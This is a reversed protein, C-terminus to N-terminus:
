PWNKVLGVANPPKRGRGPTAAAQHAPQLSFPAKAQAGTSVSEVLAHLRGGHCLHDIHQQMSGPRERGGLSRSDRGSPWGRCGVLHCVDLFTLKKESRPFMAWTTAFSRCGPAERSQSVSRPLLKAVVGQHPNAGAGSLSRAQGTIKSAVWEYLLGTTLARASPPWRSNTRGKARAQRPEHRPNNPEHFTWGIGLLGEAVPGVITAGCRRSARAPPLQQREPRASWCSASAGAAREIAMRCANGQRM